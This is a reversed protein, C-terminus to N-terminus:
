ATFRAEAVLNRGHGAAGVGFELSGAPALEAPGSGHPQMETAIRAQFGAGRGTAGVTRQAVSGRARRGNCGPRPPDLLPASPDPQLRDPQRRQESEDAAAQRGPRQRRRGQRGPQAQGLGCTRGGRGIQEHRQQQSPEAHGCQPSQAGPQQGEHHGTQQESASQRQQEVQPGIRDAQESRWRCQGAHDQRQKGRHHVPGQQTPQPQRARQRAPALDDAKGRQRSQNRRQQAGQRGHRRHQRSSAGWAVGAAGGQLEGADPGQGQQAHARGQQGTGFSPPVGSAPHRPPNCESGNSGLEALGVRGSGAGQQKGGM